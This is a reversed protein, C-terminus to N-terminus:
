EIPTLRVSLGSQTMHMPRHEPFRRMLSLNDDGLDRAVIVDGPVVDINFWSAWNLLVGGGDDEVFILLRGGPEPNERVAALAAHRLSDPREVIRRRIDMTTFMLEVALMSLLLGNALWRDRRRVHALIGGVGVFLFPFLELYFRTHPYFYAFHVVPLLLFACVTVWRFPYGRRYGIWILPVFVFAPLAFRILDSTVVLQNSLARGPTFDRDEAILRGLSDPVVYGRTGFGLDHLPGHLATYGFVLPSGNTVNNYYLLALVPLVAGMLLFAALKATEKWRYNRRSWQWLVITGAVAAGTLPRIAVACGLLLGAASWSLQRRLGSGNEARLVLWAAATVLALSPGHPMYSTGYAVFLQNAALLVAAARGAFESHVERGILYTFFVGVTSLVVGTWWRLGMADFAALITPHGPPYQTYFRGDAFVTQRLTFFRSLSEDIQRVFGPERMLRSQLLYLPEDYFAIFDLQILWHAAALFAFTAMMLAGVQWVNRGDDQLRKEDRGQASGSGPRVSLALLFFSWAAIVPLSVRTFQYMSFRDPRLYGMATVLLTVTFLGATLGKAPRWEDRARWVAFIAVASVVSVLTRWRVFEAERQLITVSLLLLALWPVAATLRRLSRIEGEM